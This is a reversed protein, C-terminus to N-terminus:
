PWTTEVYNSAETGEYNMVWFRVAEGSVPYVQLYGRINKFDRQRTNRRVHDFKGGEWAGNRVVAMAMVGHTDGQSSWNGIDEMSFFVYDGRISLNGLSKTVSANPGQPDSRLWRVGRFFTESDNVAPAVAADVAASAEGVAPNPDLEAIAGELDEQQAASLDM